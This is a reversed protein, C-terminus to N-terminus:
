NLNEPNNYKNNKTEIGIWSLGYGNVRGLWICCVPKNHSCHLNRTSTLKLQWTSGDKNNKLYFLPSFLLFKIAVVVHLLLLLPLPFPLLFHHPSM